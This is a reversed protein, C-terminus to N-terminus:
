RKLVKRKLFLANAGSVFTFTSGREDPTAESVRVDDNIGLSLHFTYKRIKKFFLFRGEQMPKCPSRILYM